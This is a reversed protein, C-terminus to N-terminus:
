KIIVKDRMQEILDAAGSVAGSLAYGWDSVSGKRRGPNAAQIRKALFDLLIMTDGLAARIAARQRKGRYTRTTRDVLEATLRDTETTRM